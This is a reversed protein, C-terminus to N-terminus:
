MKIFEIQLIKFINLILLYLNYNSDIDDTHFRMYDESRNKDFLTQKTKSLGFDAIYFEPKGNEMNVLINNHHLDRHVIGKSHMKKIKAEIEKKHEDTLINYNQWELLAIGKFDMVIFLKVVDNISSMWYDYIKPSINTDNLTKMANIESVINDLAFFNDFSKDTSLKYKNLELIKIVKDDIRYVSGLDGSGLLEGVNYKSLKTDDLPIKHKLLYTKIEKSSAINKKQIYISFLTDLLINNINNITNMTMSKNSDALLLNHKKNLYQNILNFTISHTKKIKLAMDEIHKFMKFVMQSDVTKQTFKNYKKNLNMLSKEIYKDIEVNGGYIKKADLYKKKYKLYKEKYNQM